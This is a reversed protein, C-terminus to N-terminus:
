INQSPCLIKRFRCRLNSQTFKLDLTTIVCFKTARECFRLKILTLLNSHWHGKKREGLLWGQSQPILKCVFTSNFSSKTSCFLFTKFVYVQNFDTIYQCGRKQNPLQIIVIKKSINKFTLIYLLLELFIEHFHLHLFVHISGSFLNCCM